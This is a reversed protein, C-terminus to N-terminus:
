TADYNLLKVAENFIKSFGSTISVGARDLQKDIIRDYDINIDGSQVMQLAFNKDFGLIQKAGVSNNFILNAGIPTVVKGTGQFNLGANADKMEALNLIEKMTALSAVMVNLKYPSLNEWLTLLYSYNLTGGASVSVEGAADGSTGDGILLVNVADTLLENAIDMGIQKLIVAVIDLNKFRLAEYSSSFIRGHKILPIIGKTRVNVSRM